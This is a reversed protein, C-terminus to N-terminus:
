VIRQVLYNASRLADHWTAGKAFATLVTAKSEEDMSVTLSPLLTHMAEHVRDFGGGTVRKYQIAQGWVHAYVHCAAMHKIIVRAYAHGFVDAIHYAAIGQTMSDLRDATTKPTTM